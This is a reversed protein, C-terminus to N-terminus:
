ITLWIGDKREEYKTIGYIDAAHYELRCGRSDRWGECLLIEKCQLLTEIDKGMLTPYPANLNKENIEIPTIVEDLHERWIDGYKAKLYQEKVRILKAKVEELDHGTIPISIYTKSM